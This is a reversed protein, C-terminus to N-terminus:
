FGGGGLWVQWYSVCVALRCDIERKNKASNGPRTKHDRGTQPKALPDSNKGRTAHGPLHYDDAGKRKWFEGGM